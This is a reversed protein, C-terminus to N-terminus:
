LLKNVYEDQLLDFYTQLCSAPELQYTSDKIGAESFCLQRLISAGKKINLCKSALSQTHDIQNKSHFGNWDPM